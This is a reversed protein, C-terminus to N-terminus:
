SRGFDGFGPLGPQGEGHEEGRAPYSITKGAVRASPTIVHKTAPGADVIHFVEVGLVMAADSLLRRHCRAPDAEACMVAVRDVRLMEILVDLNKWFMPTGMYDAYGRVDEALGLNISDKIPKRLGGLGPMHLYPIGRARLLDLLIMRNFHPSRKSRAVTRVDVVSSINQRKLLSLFQQLTRNSHGITWMQLPDTIRSSPENM